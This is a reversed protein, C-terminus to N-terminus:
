SLFQAYSFKAIEGVRNTKYPKIRTDIGSDNLYKCMAKPVRFTFDYSLETANFQTKLREMCDRPTGAWIHITQKKDGVCIVRSNRGVVRYAWELLKNTDNVEDILLIKPSVIREALEPHVLPLYIMGGFDVTARQFFRNSLTELLLIADNVTQVGYTFDYLEHIKLQETTYNLASQRIKDVLTRLDYYITFFEKKVENPIEKTQIGFETKVYAMTEKEVLKEDIYSKILKGAHRKVLQPTKNHIQLYRKLSQFFYAHTTSVKAGQLREIMAESLDRSFTM